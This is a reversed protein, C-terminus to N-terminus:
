ADGLDMDELRKDKFTIRIGPRGRAWERICRLKIFDATEGHTLMINRLLACAKTKIFHAALRQCGRGRLTVFALAVTSLGELDGPQFADDTASCTFSTLSISRGNQSLLPQLHDLYRRDVELETTHGLCSGALWELVEDGGDVGEGDPVSLRLKQIQPLWRLKPVQPLALPLMDASIKLETLSRHDAIAILLQRRASELRNAARAEKGVPDGGLSLTKLNSLVRLLQTILILHAADYGDQSQLIRLSPLTALAQITRQTPLGPLSIRADLECTLTNVKVSRNVIKSLLFDAEIHHFPQSDPNASAPPERPLSFQLGRLQSLTQVDESLAELRSLDQHNGDLLSLAQWLKPLILNRWSRCTQGLRYHHLYPKTPTGLTYSHVPKGSSLYHLIRSKLEKPLHQLNAQTSAQRQAARARPPM